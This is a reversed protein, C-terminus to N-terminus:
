TGVRQRSACVGAIYSEHLPMVGALAATGERIRDMRWDFEEKAMVDAQPAYSLPRLGQGVLVAFWSAEKFLENAEVLSHNHEEFAALRFKVSDPIEMRKCHAWFDTDERKTVKYHAILFDKVNDYAALMDRNFCDRLTDTIVKGPFYRLLTLVAEQVLHISTSELPELFGSALGVAVVNRNWQKTRHGTVFRIVRPEAQAKGDLRQLLLESAKDESLYSDCFVYGNGTRHQLPIRWQWGAERATSQTYPTIPRTKECPVAVARNCPLWHSWDTYGSKLTQEILLGRFGSCDIFLDGNITGGDELTVSEVDGSDPAQAVANIKGERRVVGKEESYARLFKAYLSADFHFAYNVNPAKPNIEAMRGFKNQRAALTQPNFLGFDASGGALHYRMWYHTFNIGNMDLGYTGFPHFYDSGQASWNLFRIGLKFSANTERMFTNEDIELMRNFEQITPITAEGVGVTGIEDSEILTLSYKQTGLVKSLAAAAMWGATGGGVIVINRIIGATM